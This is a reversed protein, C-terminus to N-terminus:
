GREAEVKSAPGSKELGRNEPWLSCCGSTGSKRRCYIPFRGRWKVLATKWDQTLLRQLGMNVPRSIFDIEKNDKGCAEFRLGLAKPRSVGFSWNL